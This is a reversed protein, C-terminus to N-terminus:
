SILELNYELLPKYGVPIMAKPIAETLPKLRAGEGGALIFAKM